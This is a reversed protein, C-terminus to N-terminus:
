LIKHDYAYKILGLVSNKGTKRFINKRHTEVTRESIFLAAAIEKNSYEKEMLRIIEIERLTLPITEKPKSKDEAGIESVVEDSFYIGGDAVKRIATILGHRNINKLLYGAINAEDIMANIMTGEGSMSLALICVSSYSERVKKALALGSMEPMSVDTILVDVETHSLQNLLDVPSTCALVISFDETSSLLAHIGDIVIQHDDVIAIRVPSSIM